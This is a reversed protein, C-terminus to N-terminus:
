PQHGAEPVTPRGGGGKEPVFPGPEPLAPLCSPSGRPKLCLGPGAVRGGARATSLVWCCSSPELQTHSRHLSALPLFLHAPPSQCGGGRDQPGVCSGPDSARSGRAVAQLWPCCLCPPGRSKPLFSPLFLSVWHLMCPPSHCVASGENWFTRPPCRRWTGLPLLLATGTLLGAM